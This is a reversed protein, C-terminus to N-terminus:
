IVKVCGKDKAHVDGGHQLVYEVVAVRNYGSAFHLPTSNRGTLVIGNNILSLLNMVTDILIQCVKSM